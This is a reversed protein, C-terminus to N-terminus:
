PEATWAWHTPLIVGTRRCPQGGRQNDLFPCDQGLQQISHGGGRASPLTVRAWQFWLPPGVGQLAAKPRAGPLLPLQSARKVGAGALMM